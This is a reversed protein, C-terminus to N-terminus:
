WRLRRMVEKTIMAVLKAETLSSIDETEGYGAKTAIEKIIRDFEAKLLAVIKDANDNLFRAMAVASRIEDENTLSGIVVYIDILLNKFSGSFAVRVEEIDAEDHGEMPEKGVPIELQKASQAQHSSLEKEIYSVAKEIFESTAEHYISKFPADPGQLQGGYTTYTDGYPQRINSYDGFSYLTGGIGGKAKVLHLKVGDRPRDEDYTIQIHELEEDLEELQDQVFDSFDGSTTQIWGEAELQEILAETIDELQLEIDRVSDCFSSYGDADPQSDEDYISVPVYLTNGEQRLTQNYRKEVKFYRSIRDEVVTEITDMVTSEFSKDHVDVDLDEIVFQLEGTAGFSVYPHEDMQEVEFSTELYELRRNWEDRVNECEDVMEQYRDDPDEFSAQTKEALYENMVQFKAINEQGSVYEGTEVVTEVGAENIFYAIKDWLNVEQGKPGKIIKPPARNGMKQEGQMEFGKIQYIKSEGENYSILVFSKSIKDKPGKWRLSYLSGRSDSGCNSLREAEISCHTTRLDYWYFGDDFKTIIQDPKEVSDLVRQAARNLRWFKATTSFTSDFGKIEEQAEAMTADEEVNLTTTLTGLQSITAKLPDIIIAETADIILQDIINQNVPAIGISPFAKKFISSIFKVAQRREDYTTPVDRLLLKESVSSLDEKIKLIKAKKEPDKGNEDATEQLSRDIVSFVESRAFRSAEPDINQKVFTGFWTKTKESCNILVRNIEAVVETPLGIDAVGEEIIEPSSTFKNWNELLRRFDM